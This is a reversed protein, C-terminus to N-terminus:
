HIVIMELVILKNKKQEETLADTPSSGLWFLIYIMINLSIALEHFVIALSQYKTKHFTAAISFVLSFMSALFGWESEFFIFDTPKGYGTTFCDLLFNTLFLVVHPILLCIKITYLRQYTICKFNTRNLYACTLHREKQYWKQKEDHSETDNTTINM